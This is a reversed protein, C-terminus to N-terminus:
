NWVVGMKQLHGEVTKSLEAVDTELQPLTEGYREALEKIRGTLRQSISDMEAKVDQRLSNFWKDEIVLVQTEDVTLQRYKAIVKKDLGTQAAKIKRNAQTEQNVLALYTQLVKYEDALDEDMNMQVVKLRAQLLAKTVKGKDNKVEELLGEEGSQEEEL